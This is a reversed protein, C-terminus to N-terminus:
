VEFPGRLDELEFTELKGRNRREAPGGGLWPVRHQFLFNTGNGPLANRLTLVSKRRNLRFAEKHSGGERRTEPSRTVWCLAVARGGSAMTSSLPEVREKQVFLM